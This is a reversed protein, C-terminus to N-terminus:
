EPVQPRAKRDLPRLTQRHQGNRAVEVSPAGQRSRDACGIEVSKAVYDAQGFAFMGKVKSGFYRKFFIWNHAIKIVEANEGEGSGAGLRCGGPICQGVENCTEWSGHLLVSRVM